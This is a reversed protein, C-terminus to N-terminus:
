FIVFFIISTNQTTKKLNELVGQHQPCIKPEYSFTYIATHNHISKLYSKM